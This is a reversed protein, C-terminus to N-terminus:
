LLPWQPNCWGCCWVVVHGSSSYWRHPWRKLVVTVCEHPPIVEAGGRRQALM